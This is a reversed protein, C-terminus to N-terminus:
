VVSKWTSGPGTLDGGAEYIHFRMQVGNGAANSPVANNYWLSLHTGAGWDLHASDGYMARFKRAYYGGNGPTPLTTSLMNLGGWTETTHMRWASRLSAAGAYKTVADDSLIHYPLPPTANATGNYVIAFMSDATAIDFSNIKFQAQVPALGLVVTLALPVILAVRRLFARM